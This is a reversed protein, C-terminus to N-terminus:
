CDYMCDTGFREFSQEARLANDGERGCTECVAKRQKPYYFIKDGKRIRAGCACDSGFKATTWYPDVNQYKRRRYGM